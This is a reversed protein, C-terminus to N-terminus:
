RSINSRPAHRQLVSKVHLTIEIQVPFNDEGSAMPM